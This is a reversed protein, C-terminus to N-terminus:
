NRSDKIISVEKMFGVRQFIEFNFNAERKQRWKSTELQLSLKRKKQLHNQGSRSFFDFNLGRFFINKLTMLCAGFSEAFSEASNVVVPLFRSISGFFKFLLQYFLNETM